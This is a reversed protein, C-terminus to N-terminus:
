IAARRSRRAVFGVLSCMAILALTSPEPVAQNVVINDLNYHDSSNRSVAIDLRDLITAPNPSPITFYAGVLNLTGGTSYVSGNNRFGEITYTSTSSGFGALDVSSFTFLGTVTNTVRATGVGPSENFISPAPNGSSQGVRWLNGANTVTFGGQSHSAFGSTDAGALGTFDVNYAQAVSGALAAVIALFALCLKATRHTNSM